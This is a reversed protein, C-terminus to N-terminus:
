KSLTRFLTGDPNFLSVSSLSEEDISYQYYVNNELMTLVEGDVKWTGNVEGDVSCYFSYLGNAYFSIRHSKNSFDVPYGNVYESTVTWNGVLNNDIVSDAPVYGQEYVPRSWQEIAFFGAIVVVPILVLLWLWWRSKKKRKVPQRTRVGTQQMGGSQQFGTAHVPVKSVKPKAKPADGKKALQAKNIWGRVNAGDHISRMKNFYQLALDYSGKNYYEKGEALLEYYAKAQECYKIRSQVFRKDPIYGDEHIALVEKYLVKADQYKKDKLAQEALEIKHKYKAKKQREKGKEKEIDDVDVDHQEPTYEPDAKVLDALHQRALKTYDGEPYAKIYKLYASPQNVIKARNWLENEEIKELLTWAKDYYKGKPHNEIFRTLDIKNKSNSAQKWESEESLSSINDMAAQSYMGEPHIELYSNYAEVTNEATVTEWIEEESVKLHFVFEGGEDGADKIRGEVPSQNAESEVYQTVHGIMDSARFVQNVNRSLQHIIAKAFPSNDGPTGDEVLEQRGSAFVRCSPYKESLVDSRSQSVLSGSFCSDIIILTHHTKIAKIWKLVDANSIYDACTNKRANSPVWYGEEIDEDFWGHGSYYLILNDEKTIKKKLGIITKRIGDETADKNTLSIVHDPEFQYKSILLNTVDEIDKVANNLSKWHEYKDIGITLLYNQGKFGWSSDGTPIKIGRHMQKPNHRLIM